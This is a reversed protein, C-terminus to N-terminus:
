FKLLAAPINDTDVFCKQLRVYKFWKVNGSATGLSLARSNIHYILMGDREVFPSGLQKRISDVSMGVLNLKGLQPDAFRSKIAILEENSDYFDGPKKGYKYVILRFGRLRESERLKAPEKFMAYWYYFGEREPKYYCNDGKMVSSNSPGKIRKFESLNIPNQLLDSLTEQQKQTHEHEDAFLPVSLAWLVLLLLIPVPRM